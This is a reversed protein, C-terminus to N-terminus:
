SRGKHTKEQKQPVNSSVEAQAPASNDIEIPLNWGMKIRQEVRFFLESLPEDPQADIPKNRYALMEQLRSSVAEEIELKKRLEANEKRLAALEKNLKAFNPKEDQRGGRESDIVVSAGLLDMIPGIERINSSRKAQDEKDAMWKTLTSPNMNVAMALQRASGYLSVGTRLATMVDNLFKSMDM